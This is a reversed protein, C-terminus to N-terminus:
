EKDLIDFRCLLSCCGFFDSKKDLNNGFWDRLSVNRIGPRICDFSIARTAKGEAGLSKDIVTFHVMCLAPCDVEFSMTENWVSIFGNDRKPKTTKKASYFELSSPSTTGRLEVEVFPNMHRQTSNRFSRRPKKKEGSLITIKLVKPSAFPDGGERILFNPKLIYGCGGNDAFKGQNLQMEKCGTQYNLAVIQCGVCWAPIPDYNDSAIRTGAPYIRSLHNRNYYVCGNMDNDILKKIKSETFSSMTNPPKDRYVEFSPFKIGALFTIRSM